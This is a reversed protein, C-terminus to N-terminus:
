PIITGSITLEGNAITIANLTIHFPSALIPQNISQEVRTRMEDLMSQDLQIPGFQVDSIAIHVLGDTGITPVVTLVGNVAVPETGVQGYIGIAGDRLAVQVDHIPVATGSDAEQQAIGVNVASTLEAETFTISFPGNPTALNLNRWKSNFSEYAEQSTQVTAAPASASGRRVGPANCALSAAALILAVFLLQITYIRTSKTSKM